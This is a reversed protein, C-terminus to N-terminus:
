SVFYTAVIGAILAVPLLGFSIDLKILQKTVNEHDPAKLLSQVAYLIIVASLIIPPLYAINVVGVVFPVLLVVFYMVWLLSSIRVAARIGRKAAFTPIGAKLDGKLTKADKLANYAAGGTLFVPFFSLSVYTIQGFLLAEGFLPILGTSAGMLVNSLLGSTRKFLSPYLILFIIEYAVIALALPNLIFAFTAGIVFVVSSYQAAGAPTIAGSPIPRDPKMIADSERDFYDNIACGGANILAVVVFGMILLPVNFVGKEFTIMLLVALVPFQLRYPFRALAICAWSKQRMFALPTQTSVCKSTSPLEDPM